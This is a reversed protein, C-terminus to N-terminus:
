NLNEPHTEIVAEQELKELLSDTMEKQKKLISMNIIDQKVQEFERISDKEYRETVTIIHYGFDTQVPRSYQNIELEFAAEILNDTNESETFFGLDGNSANMTDESYERVLANFDEGNILKTRIEDATAKNSVVIHSIRVEAEERVFEEPHADYYQKAEADSVQADTLHRQLIEDAMLQREFQKLRFQLDAEKHLDQDRAHQYLLEQRVWQEIFEQKEMTGLSQLFEAPIQKKFQNLTLAEDNVKAIVPSDDKEGFDLCATVNLSVILTILIVTNKKTMYPVVKM